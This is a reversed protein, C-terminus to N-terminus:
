ADPDLAGCRLYQMLAPAFHAGDVRKVRVIEQGLLQTTHRVPLRETEAEDLDVLATVPVPSRIQAQLLGMYRAEILGRIPEPASAVLEGHLLQVLVRDDAVLQAGFAMLQLALASKGQGSTGTILLGQGELAVCSAHLILSQTESM